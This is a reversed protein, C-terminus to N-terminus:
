TFRNSPAQEKRFRTVREILFELDAKIAGLDIDEPNRRPDAPSSRRAHRNGGNERCRLKQSVGNSNRLKAAFCPSRSALHHNILLKRHARRQQRPPPRLRDVPDLGERGSWARGPRQRSEFRCPRVRYFALLDREWRYCKTILRLKDNVTAKIQRKKV